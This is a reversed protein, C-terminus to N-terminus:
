HTFIRDFDVVYTGDDDYVRAETTGPIYMFHEDRIDNNGKLVVWDCSGDRYYDHAHFTENGDINISIEFQEGSASMDGWHKIADSMKVIKPHKDLKALRYTKAGSRGVTEITFDEPYIGIERRITENSFLGFMTVVSSGAKTKELEVNTVIFPEERAYVGLIRPYWCEDLDNKITTFIDTSM